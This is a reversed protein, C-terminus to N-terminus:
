QPTEKTETTTPPIQPQGNAPQGQRYLIKANDHMHITYGDLRTYSRSGLASVLKAKVSPFLGELADQAEAIAPTNLRSPRVTHPLSRATSIADRYNKYRVEREKLYEEAIKKVTNAEDTTMGSKKAFYSRWGAAMDANGAADEKQAQREYFTLTSFLDEYRFQENLAQQQEPTLPPPM